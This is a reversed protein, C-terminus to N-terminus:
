PAFWVPGTAKDLGNTKVSPGGTGLQTRSPHTRNQGSQQGARVMAVVTDGPARRPRVLAGAAEGTLHAEQDM